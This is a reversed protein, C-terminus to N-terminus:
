GFWRKKDPKAAATSLASTETGERLNRGIRQVEVNNSVTFIAGLSTREAADGYGRAYSALSGAMIEQNSEAGPLNKLNTALFARDKTSLTELPVVMVQNLAESRHFSDPDRIALLVAVSNDNYRADRVREWGADSVKTPRERVSSVVYGLPANPHATLETCTALQTQEMKAFTKEGANPHGLARRAQAELGDVAPGIFARWREVQGHLRASRDSEDLGRHIGVFQPMMVKMGAFYTASHVAKALAKDDTAADSVSADIAVLGKSIDKPYTRGGFTDVSLIEPALEEFAAVSKTWAAREAPSLDPVLSAAPVGELARPQPVGVLAGARVTVPETAAARVAKLLASTERNAARLGEGRRVVTNLLAATDLDGSADAAVAQASLHQHGEDTSAYEAAAQEWKERAAMVAGMDGAAVAEEVGTAARNVKTRTHSACRQGGDPMSNCMPSTRWDDALALLDPM